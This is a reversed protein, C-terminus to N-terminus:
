GIMKRENLKQLSHQCWVRAPDDGEVFVEDGFIGYQFQLIKRMDKDDKYKMQIAIGIDSPLGKAIIGGRGGGDMVCLMRTGVIVVAIGLFGAALSM